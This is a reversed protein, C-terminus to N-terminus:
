FDNILAGSVSHKGNSQSKFPSLYFVMFRINEMNIIKNAKHKGTFDNAIQPGAGSGIPSQTNGPDIHLFTKITHSYESYSVM